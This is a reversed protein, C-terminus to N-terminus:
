TYIQQGFFSAFNSSLVIINKNTYMMAHRLGGNNNYGVIPMTVVPLYGDPIINSYTVESTSVNLAYRVRKLGIPHKSFYLHGDAVSVDVEASWAQLESQIINNVEDIADQVNTSELGSETNDYSVRNAPYTNGGLSDDAYLITWVNITNYITDTATGSVVERKYCKPTEPDFFYQAMGNSTPSIATSYVSANRHFTKEGGDVDIILDCRYKQDESMNTLANILSPIGGGGSKYMGGSNGATMTIDVSM